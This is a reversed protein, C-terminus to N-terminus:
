HDDDSGLDDDYGEDEEEEPEASVSPALFAEVAKRAATTKDAPTLVTVSKDNDVRVFGGAQSVTTVLAALAAPSERVVTFTSQQFHM